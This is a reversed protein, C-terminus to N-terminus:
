QYLAFALQYLEELVYLLSANQSTQESDSSLESKAFPHLFRSLSRHRLRRHLRGEMMEGNLIGECAIGLVQITKTRDLHESVKKLANRMLYVACSQQCASSTRNSIQLARVHRSLHHGCYQLFKLPVQLALLAKPYLYLLMVMLHWALPTKMLFFVPTKKYIYINKVHPQVKGCQVVYIYQQKCTKQFCIQQKM